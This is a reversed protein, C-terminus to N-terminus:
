TRKMSSFRVAIPSATRHYGRNPFTIRVISEIPATQGAKVDEAPAQTQAPTPRGSEPPRCGLAVLSVFQLVLALQRLKMTVDTRRVTAIASAAPTGRLPSLPRPM